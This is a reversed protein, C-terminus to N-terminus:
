QPSISQPSVMTPTALTFQRWQNRHSRRLVAMSAPQRQPRSPRGPLERQWPVPAARRLDATSSDCVASNLLPWACISRRHGECGVVRIVGPRPRHRHLHPDALRSHSKPRGLAASPTLM